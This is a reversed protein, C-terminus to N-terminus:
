QRRSSTDVRNTIEQPKGVQTSSIQAMGTGTNSAGTKKSRGKKDFDKERMLYEAAGPVEYKSHIDIAEKELPLCSFPNVLYNSFEKDVNRKIEEGLVEYESKKELKLTEEIDWGSAFVGSEGSPNREVTEAIKKHQFNFTQVPRAIFNDSGILKKKHEEYAENVERMAKNELKYNTSPVYLTM